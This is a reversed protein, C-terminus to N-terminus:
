RQAPVPFCYRGAESGIGDPHLACLGRGPPHQVHFQRQRADPGGCVPVPFVAGSCGAGAGEPHGDAAM